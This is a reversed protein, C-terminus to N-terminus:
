CYRSIMVFIKEEVRSWSLETKSVVCNCVGRLEYNKM